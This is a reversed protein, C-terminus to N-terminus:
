QVLERGQALDVADISCCVKFTACRPCSRTMELAVEVPSIATVHVVIAALWLAAALMSRM